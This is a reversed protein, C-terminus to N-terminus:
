FFVVKLIINWLSRVLKFKRKIKCYNILNKLFIYNVLNEIRKVKKILLEIILYCNLREKVNFVIERVLLILNIFINLIIGNIFNFNVASLM